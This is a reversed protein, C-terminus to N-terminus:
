EYVPVPESAALYLTGDVNLIDVSAWTAPLSVTFKVGASNKEGGFWQGIPMGVATAIKDSNTLIFTHLKVPGNWVTESGNWIPAADSFYLSYYFEGDFVPKACHSALNMDTWVANIDPLRVDNYLYAVPVPTQPEQRKGRQRAVWNGAKWGLFLSLPDLAPALIPIPASAALYLTGDTNYIDTNTWKPVIM